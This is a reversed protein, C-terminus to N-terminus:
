FRPANNKPENLLAEFRPDGRLKTFAPIARLDHVSFPAATQFLATLETVASDKDGNVACVWAVVFRYIPGDLADRTDPLLAAAKRALTLGEAPHGLMAEMEALYALAQANAPESVVRARWAAVHPALRAEMAARDAHALYVGAAKVVALNPDEEEEFSPQRADLRKFEDYDRFMAVEKRWYLGVPSERQAPSLRALLEDMAQWSGTADFESFALDFQERLDDPRLRILQEHAARVDAWRRGRVFSALLNRVYGVNGPDLEVARRLNALSEVWRGQRRQILGLSSFVTPNNPQLRALKEYQETARAYDRYGYYAYTGLSEIVSPDDPALRVAQAIAADASELRAPSADAGWFANLAHVVALEGWAAAFKQDQQVASKFLTEAQRLAPNVGSPSNNRLDRGKLYEDYAVPNETPKRELFKRTQPSIAASLAGAIKKSLEAQISFIDTLDRDYSEAWVHEDTRTNILQGTVRVKNGARRVSGELVYAVGLEEGIEKITKKTGRYQMVSTRSVVKLEPILALNTLLDEHVGDAFFGTDKDDSMNDLPLVAISKSSIQQAAPAAPAPKMEAVTPAAAPVPTAPTKAASRLAIYGVLALVVAGLGAILGVQRNSKPAVAPGAEPRPAPSASSPATAPMPPASGGLLRKIQDILQPTVLAGPLRTWQVRLFEGPVLAGSETTADTVVPALFPVGEAMLHTREAALKWELRFYGEKRSQTNASILPVFLACEKIQRRIKQDWTDGGRLENQDFWVELGHSRLADAIRRAADTDEHAYSLFIAHNAPDPM